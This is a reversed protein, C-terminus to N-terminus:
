APYWKPVGWTWTSRSIGDTGTGGFLVLQETKADYAMAAEYRPSPAKIPSLQAWDSGDWAWTDGLYGTTGSSTAGVGGFLVLRQTGPGGYYAM